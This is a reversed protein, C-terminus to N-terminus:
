SFHIEEDSSQPLIKFPLIYSSIIKYLRRDVEKLQVNVLHQYNFLIINFDCYSTQLFLFAYVSAYAKQYSISRDNQKNNPSVLCETQTKAQQRISTNNVYGSIVFVSFFLMGALFSTTLRDKFYTIKTKMRHIFTVCDNWYAEASYIISKM